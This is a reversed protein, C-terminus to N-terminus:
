QEIISPSILLQANANDLYQALKNALPSDNQVLPNWSSHHLNFDRLFLIPKDLNLQLDLFRELSLKTSYNSTPKENYIHIVYFSESPLEVEM